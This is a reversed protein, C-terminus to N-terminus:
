YRQLFDNIESVLWEQEVAELGEGIVIEEVGHKIILQTQPVGNIYGSVNLMANSLDNTNGSAHKTGSDTWERKFKTADANRSLVALKKELRWFVSNIELTESIFQRGIASKALNAGALWFPISFLAFVIGGSALASATWFAVFGNWFLAFGGTALSSSDFKAPPIHIRLTDGRKELMVRSGVPKKVFQGKGTQPVISGHFASGGMVRGRGQLISLANELNLRDESVPELLGALVNRLKDNLEVASLDLKMRSEPFQSPLRGSALYLITAGLSYLDSKPDCRGRLMEPAAFGMTGVITFSKMSDDFEAAQVGGFDVLMIKANEVNDLDSVIINAPKVDRHVVPPRLGALYKLVLLMECLIRILEADTWKHGMEIADQLSKGEALEQVIYFAKDDDTDVEFYDIYKPINPNEIAELIQAEREFLDLQKWNRMRRLSLEKIAVHSEADRDWCRYTTANGGRGLVGKVEYRGDKLDAPVPDDGQTMRLDRANNWSWVRIRDGSIRLADRHITVKHYCSSLGVKEVTKTNANTLCFGSYTQIRTQNM